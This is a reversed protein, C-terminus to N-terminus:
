AESSHFLGQITAGLHAGYGAAIVQQLKFLNLRAMSRFLLRLEDFIFM